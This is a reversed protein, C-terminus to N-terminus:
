RRDVLNSDFVRVDAWSEQNEEIFKVHEPSTQYADHAARDQFIVHLSVDYHANVPRDYEPERRGVAFDVTGPHRDLYTQCAQVLRQAAADSRDKLTFFVHHALRAM